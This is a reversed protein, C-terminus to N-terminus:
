HALLGVLNGAIAGVLIQILMMSITVRVSITSALLALGLWVNGM